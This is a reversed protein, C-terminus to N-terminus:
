AIAITSSVNLAISFGQQLGYRCIEYHEDDISNSEKLRIAIAEATKAFM